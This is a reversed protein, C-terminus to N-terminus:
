LDTSRWGSVFLPLQECGGGGAGTSAWPGSVAHAPCFGAAGARALVPVACSGCATWSVDFGQEGSEPVISALPRNHQFSDDLDTEIGMLAAATAPAYRKMRALDARSAMICGRCSLRTMGTDYIPHYPVGDARIGAWVDQVTRTHIPLWEWVLRSTRASVGFNLGFPSRAARDTSEEARFGMIQLVRVPRTLQRERRIQVCLFETFARGVATKWDSTCYRTWMTAFGRPSGDRKRRTAFDDLLDGAWDVGDRTTRRAHHMRGAWMSRPVALGAARADWVAWGNGDGLPLGYRRAQEAALEPVQPWEVRPDDTDRRDLWLHLAATKGVGGAARIEDMAVAVARQSDKGGSTHIVILDFWNLWGATYPRPAREVCVFFAM